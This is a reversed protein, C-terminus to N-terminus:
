LERVIVHHPLKTTAEDIFGAGVTAFGHRAYFGLASDRANAWVLEAGAMRAREVGSELLAGGVGAGQHERATAMGRLQIAARHPQQAFPKPIWSSVAALVGDVELGLHVAGPLADEAFEVAKSETDARLVTLRLAHTQEPALEVVAWTRRSAGGLGAEDPASM